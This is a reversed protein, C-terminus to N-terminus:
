ARLQVSEAFHAYADALGDYLAIRPAWGMALLKGSDMLKRPTGDPRSADFALAGTFGVVDGILRAVEAISVESGTGVNIHEAASYNELLFVLADALDRRSDVPRRGASPENLERSTARDRALETM